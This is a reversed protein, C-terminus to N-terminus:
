AQGSDPEDHSGPYFRPSTDPFTTPGADQGGPSDAGPFSSGASPDAFPTTGPGGGGFPGSPNDPYGQGGPQQGGGFPSSPQTQDLNLGNAQEHTQLDTILREIKAQSDPGGRGTREAYIAAGLQRLLAEARRNAQAQDLRDKGQQAAQQAAESAKQAAIAAQQKVRDMLGM